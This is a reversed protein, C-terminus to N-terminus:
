KKMGSTEMSDKWEKYNAVAVTGLILAVILVAAGVPWVYVYNNEAGETILKKIFVYSIGISVLAGAVVSIVAGFGHEILMMKLKQKPEMGVVDYLWLEKRRIRMDAQLTNLVQFICVLLIFGCIVLCAVTLVNLTNSLEFYSNDNINYYYLGNKEAFNMLDHDLIDMDRKVGTECLYLARYLSNITMRSFAYVNRSGSIGEAAAIAKVRECLTEMPYIIRIYAGRVTQANVLVNLTMGSYVENSLIGMVKIEEKEGQEFVIERVCELVGLMTYNSDPLRDYCDYGMLKLEELLEGRIKYYEEDTSGQKQHDFLPILDQKGEKMKQVKEEGNEFYIIKRNEYDYWAAMGLRESVRGVAEMYVSRAKLAGELSLIEITDGPHYATKREEDGENSSIDCILVGNERVMRDYDIDGETLYPREKEMDQPSCGMEYIWSVPGYGNDYLRKLESDFFYPTMGWKPSYLCSMATFIDTIGSKGALTERLGADWETDYISCNINRQTQKYIVERYEDITGGVEKRITARVSDVASLVTLLLVTSVFIAIFVAKGGGRGRLSNKHAYFGSIGFLKEAASPKEKKKIKKGRIKSALLKLAKGVTLEKALAGHLAELPSVQSSLRAPEILSFLTVGICLLTTYGAASPYFHFAFVEKLELMKIVWKESLKLMEFGIGLGLASAMFSMVVGDTLLLFFNQQESMGVCRLLGYDRSRETVAIMMTNRLIVVSFLGLVTALATIILNLLATEVSDDQRLYQEVYGYVWFGIGYKESLETASKKIDKTNKLKVRVKYVEGAKLQTPLVRRWYGPYDRDGIDIRVDELDPDETMRKLAAVQEETYATNQDTSYIEYPETSYVSYYQYDWASYGITLICFSLIYTLAIGLVSYLTRAKNHWMYQKALHLYYGM